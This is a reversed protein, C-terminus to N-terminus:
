RRNCMVIIVIIIIVIILLIESISQRLTKINKIKFDNKSEPILQHFLEIANVVSSEFSTFSYSSLGNHVGCNYLNNILKSKNNIYGYKTTMFATNISNWKNNQYYNHSMIAYDYDPLNILITKLQRFVENIIVEKDEIQDPTKNLYKSLDYKSILTSIVTQSRNDEFDMYDSLVIHGIGWETEPFGWIKELKIKKNWHFVVPIYTIYNTIKSWSNFNDGFANQLSEFKTILQNINYPPMALIYNNGAIINNNQGVVINTINNNEDTIFNNIECNLFLDVGNKILHEQWIKFLGVDHPKKPQYIKYGLNQNIIQLFSFTTFNEIGGGDTLRCLRDLYNIAKDSFNYQNVCESLSINKYTENLSIFLYALITMERFTLNKIGSNIFDNLGFKYPSFLQEFSTGLELLIKKFMHYNDIYIRPGHETFLGDVRRVSHCGGIFSEKEILAVKKNYKSLLLALTLGSPGGGIIIYDYIM